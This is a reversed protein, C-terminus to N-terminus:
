FVLFCFVGGMNFIHTPDPDEASIAIGRYIKYAIREGAGESSLGVYKVCRIKPEAAKM